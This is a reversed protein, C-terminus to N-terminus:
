VETLQQKRQNVLEQLDALFQTPDEGRSVMKDMMAKKVDNVAKNDDVVTQGFAKERQMNQDSKMKDQQIKEQAQAQVQAAKENGKAQEQTMMQKEKTQRQKEQRIWFDLKVALELYNGGRYLHYEINMVKAIDILGQAMAVKAYEVLNAKMEDTPRPYLKIGLSSMGERNQKIVLADDDGIVKAYNEFAKEDIDILNAIMPITQEALRNKIIMVSNMLYSMTINSANMSALANRVPLKPDPTVGYGMPSLGTVMEGLRLLQEMFGLEEMVDKFKTGEIKKVPVNDGGSNEESDYFYVLEQRLMKLALFPDYQKDGDSFQAIKLRNVAIFDPVSKLLKNCFNIFHIAFLHAIPVLSEIPPKEWIKFAGFGLTPKNNIYAQNKAWGYNWVFDTGVLWSVDYRKLRRNEILKYKKNKEYGDRYPMITKKGMSNTYQLSREKEVDIIRMHMTCVNFDIASENWKMGGIIWSSQNNHAYNKYKNAINHFDERNLGTKEGNTIRDQIERIKNLSVYDFWYICQADSYDKEFSLQCGFDKVDRYTWIAKYNTEDYDCTAFGVGVTVIDKFLKEKLSLSWNSIDETHQIAQEIAIVSRDKYGGENKIDQLAEYSDTIADDRTPLGSFKRLLNTVGRAKYKVWAQNMRFLERSTADSDVCFAKIDSDYKSFEGLMKRMINPIPSLIDWIGTFWGKRSAEANAEMQADVNLESLLNASPFEGGTFYDKYIQASQRGMSILRLTDVKEDLTNGSDGSYPIDGKNTSYQSYVAKILQKAYEPNEKKSAPINEMDPFLFGSRLQIDESPIYAM